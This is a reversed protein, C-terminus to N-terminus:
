YDGMVENEGGAKPNGPVGEATSSVLIERPKAGEGPGIIGQEELMDLLRAARAYGVRLRRQLLSASAKGSQIVTEKATEYLDDDIIGGDENAASNWLNSQSGPAKTVDESYEVEKAQKTIFEVVKKV